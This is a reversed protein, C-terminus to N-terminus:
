FGFLFKMLSFGVTLLFLIIWVQLAVRDAWPASPTSPTPENPKMVQEPQEPQSKAKSAM